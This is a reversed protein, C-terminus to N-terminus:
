DNNTRGWAGGGLAATRASQAEKEPLWVACLIGPPALQSCLDRRRSHASHVCPSHQVCPLTARRHLCHLDGRLLAAGPLMNISPKPKKDVGADISARMVPPVGTANAAARCILAAVSVWRVWACSCIGHPLQARLMGASTVRLQYWHKHISGCQLAPKANLQLDM